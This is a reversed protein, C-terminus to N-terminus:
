KPVMRIAAQQAVLFGGFASVEIARRVAEPDLDRIGGRVRASANFVVVEPSGIEADAQDFLRVVSAPDAADAAILQSGTEASLQALKEIDRAALAGREGARTRARALSASIGPGAGVILGSQYPIEVM